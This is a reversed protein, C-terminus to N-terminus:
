CNTKKKIKKLISLKQQFLIQTSTLKKVGRTQVFRQRKRAAPEYKQTM